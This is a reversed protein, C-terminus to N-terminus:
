EAVDDTTLPSQALLDEYNHPSAGNTAAGLDQDNMQDVPIRGASSEPDLGADVRRMMDQWEEYATGVYSIGDVNLAYSPAAASYVTLGNEAGYLELAYSVIRDLSLDTTVTKALEAVLGPIELPGSALVERVIAELIQRQAQARGFDGGSVNYRERAYALAQEGDLVQTGASFSIGGNGAHIDEPIDVTVGGLIDVVEKLGSFDVEVYHSIQVGAFESVTRVTSAPGYNYAANIKEVGGSEGYVMTDRPISVFTLVGSSADVRALMIVDSRAAEGNRSDSGIVLAYFADSGQEGEPDVLVQEMEERDGEDLGMMNNVSNLWAFCTVVGIVAIFLLCLLGAKLEFHKKRGKRPTQAAYMDGRSEASEARKGRAAVPQPERVAVPQPVKVLSPSTDGPRGSGHSGTGTQAADPQAFHAPLRGDHFIPELQEGEVSRRMHRPAGKPEAARDRVEKDEM